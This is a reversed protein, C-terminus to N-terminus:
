SMANCTLMNELQSKLTNKYETNIISYLKNWFIPFVRPIGGSYLFICMVIKVTREVITNTIHTSNSLIMNSNFLFVSM